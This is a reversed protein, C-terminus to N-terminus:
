TRQEPGAYLLKDGFRTKLAPYWLTTEYATGRWMAGWTDVHDSDREVGYSADGAMKAFYVRRICQGIESAGVTQERDAFERRTATAYAALIESIMPSSRASLRSLPRRSTPCCPTTSPRCDTANGCSHSRVM